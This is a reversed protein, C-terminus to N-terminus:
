ESPVVGSRIIGAAIVPCKDMFLSAIVLSVSLTLTWKLLFDMFANKPHKVVKLLQETSLSMGMLFFIVGLCFETLGQISTFAHPIFYALLSCFILWLPLFTSINM